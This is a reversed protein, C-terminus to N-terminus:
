HDNESIRLLVKLAEGSAACALAEKGRDLPMIKSILPKVMVSKETLAALAPEFAGCRSGIVTIEDIVVPALDINQSEAYTSKLILTGEARLLQLATEFGEPTGTCEVVMDAKEGTYQGVLATRIGMEQVIDLKSRHKGLLLGDVHVGRLVQSILLGLKGDGLIIVRDSSAIPAQELIRYAAALPEVFVAEDDTITDPVKHLNELPLVAYEAFAGDRDYIGLVTRNPCHRRLGNRCTDCMGCACNIEGVIRKGIWMEDDCNEVRGVFEHGMIGKFNMYGKSIEIDTQCIGAMLVRILAEGGRREPMPYQDIYQVTTDFILAKM